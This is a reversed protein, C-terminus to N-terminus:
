ISSDPTISIENIPKVLVLDCDDPGPCSGKTCTPNGGCTPATESTLKGKRILIDIMSQLIEPSIDLRHCLEAHSIEEGEQQIIRLLQSLM